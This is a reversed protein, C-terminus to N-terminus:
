LLPSLSRWIVYCGVAIVVIGFVRGLMGKRRALSVGTRIGAARGAFGGAVFLAAVTWDVLGSAAYNAATTLGFAAVALLSTGVAHAMPMGTAAVLAPVILFGGGIGFFGSLGGVGVGAVVLPPALRPSSRWTLRVAPDGESGKRLLTFTGIAVMLLGFLALLKGGDFAKALTSGFAAGAIGAASFLVARPWKVRGARAHGALNALASAAVAVASTGIAVHADSVGVAYVLLPVALISGGGGVLGLVFGVAAGAFGAGIGIGPEIM